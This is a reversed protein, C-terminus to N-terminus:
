PLYISVIAGNRKPHNGYKIYGQKDGQKHHEAILRVFYLGLGSGDNKTTQKEGSLIKESFGHGNDEIHIILGESDDASINIETAGAQVSNTIITVLALQVLQENYFGQCDDSINNNFSVSPFQIRTDDIAHSVSDKPWADDLPFNKQEEFRFLIMMQLTDNKLRVTRQFIPQIHQHYKEPINALAESEYDLLTHLQNKIDHIVAAMLHEFKM